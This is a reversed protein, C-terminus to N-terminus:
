FTVPYGPDTPLKGDVPVVRLDQGVAHHEVYTISGSLKSVVKLLVDSPTVARPSGSLGRIKRDIWYRAAEEPSMGLVNKDFAVRERSAPPFNLPILRAGGATTSEGLFARKLDYFSLGRVASDKAVVIALVRRSTQAEVPWTTGFAPLAVLSGFGLLCFSRRRLRM